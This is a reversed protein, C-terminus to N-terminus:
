ATAAADATAKKAETYAEYAAHYESLKIQTVTDPVKTSRTAYECSYYGYINGQEDDWLETTIRGSGNFDAWWFQNALFKKGNVNKCVEDEWLCNMPSRQKFIVFGYPDRRKMVQSEYKALLEPKLDVTLRDNLVYSLKEDPFYKDFFQKAIEIFHAKEEKTAFYNKYFTTGPNVKFAMEVM